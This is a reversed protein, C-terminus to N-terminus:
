DKFFEEIQFLFEPEPGIISRAAKVTDYAQEMPFEPKMHMVCAIALSASRSVGAECHILVKGTSLDLFKLVGSLHPLISANPSDRVGGIRFYEFDSHTVYIEESLMSGTISIIHTIGRETLAAVDTSIYKDGVYIKGLILQSISGETRWNEFAPGLNWEFNRKAGSVISM